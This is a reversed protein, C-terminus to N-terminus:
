NHDCAIAIAAFLVKILASRSLQPRNHLLSDKMVTSWMGIM